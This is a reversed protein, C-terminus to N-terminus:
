SGKSYLVVSSKLYGIPMELESNGFVFENDEQNHEEGPARMRTM